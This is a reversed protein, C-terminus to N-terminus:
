KEVFPVFCLIIYRRSCLLRGLGRREGSLGPFYLFFPVPNFSIGFVQYLQM